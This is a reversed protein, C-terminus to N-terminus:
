QGARQLTQRAIREQSESIHQSLRAADGWVLGPSIGNCRPSDGLVNAAIASEVAMLDIIIARAESQAEPSGNFRGRKQTRERGKEVIYALTSNLSDLVPRGSQEFERTAKDLMFNRRRCITDGLLLNTSDGMDSLLGEIKFDRHSLLDQDTTESTAEVQAPAIRVPAPPTQAQTQQPPPATAMKYSAGVVFLFMLFTGAAITNKLGANPTITEDEM